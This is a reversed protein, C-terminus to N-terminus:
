LQKRLKVLLRDFKDDNAEVEIRSGDGYDPRVEIRIESDHLLGDESRAIATYSSGSEKIEFVKLHAGSPKNQKIINLAKRALTSPKGPASYTERASM